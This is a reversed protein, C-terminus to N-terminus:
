QRTKEFGVRITESFKRHERQEKENQATKLWKVYEKMPFAVYGMNDTEMYLGRVKEWMAKIQPFNTLDDGEKLGAKDLAMLYRQTLINERQTRATMNKPDYQLATEAFYLANDDGGFKRLYANSLHTMLHAMVRKTNLTDLYIKSKVGEAKIYGSGIVFADSTLLGVTTEYNFLTGKNDRFKIYTHNPATSLYAETKLEEALVLYLLPLSNCNGKGLVLLRTVMYIEPNTKQNLYGEYDYSFPVHKTIGGKKERFSLTDAMVRQIAWNCVAKDKLNYNKAKAARRCLGTLEKIQADYRAYSFQNDFYANEAMFVGRKVSMPIRGEIMQKLTDFAAKYCNKGYEARMENEIRLQDAEFERQNEEIITQANRQYPQPNRSQELSQQILRQNQEQISQGGRLLEAPNAQPYQALVSSFHFILAISFFLSKM